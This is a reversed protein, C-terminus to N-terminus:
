LFILLPWSSIFDSSLYLENLGFHSIVLILISMNCLTLPLGLSCSKGWVRICVCILRTTVFGTKANIRFCLRLDAERYGRLQDAGKNESCLYFLGM